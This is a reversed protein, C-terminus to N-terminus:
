DFRAARFPVRRLIEKMKGGGPQNACTDSAAIACRIQDQLTELTHAEGNEFLFRRERDRLDVYNLRAVCGRDLSFREACFHELKVRVEFVVAVPERRFDISIKRFQAIQFHQGIKHGRCKDVIRQPTLANEFFTREIM